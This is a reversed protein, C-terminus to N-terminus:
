IVHGAYIQKYCLSVLGCTDCGERVSTELPTERVHCTTRSILLAAQFHNLARLPRGSLARCQTLLLSSNQMLFSSKHILFSSNQILFSSNQLSSSKSHPVHSCM